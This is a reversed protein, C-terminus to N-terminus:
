KFYIYYYFLKFKYDLIVYLLIYKEKHIVKKKNKYFKTINLPINALNYFNHNM